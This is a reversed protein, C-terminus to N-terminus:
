EAVVTGPDLRDVVGDFDDDFSLVSDIDHHGVLAVTMADTFSLGHDAYQEFAAVADEFRAPSSSLLDIADPYGEGRIRRGLEVADAMRGTRRYTLTVAEDYVYESTFVRGYETSGLVRTLARAGVDHRSADTDHHAYLVGTDVLVSM